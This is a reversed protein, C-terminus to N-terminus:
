ALKRSSRRFGWSGIRSSTAPMLLAPSRAASSVRWSSAKLRLCIRRGSTSWGFAIMKPTCFISRRRRVSFMLSESTSEASAPLTLASAPWSSCTSTLRTTFARSAIGFPPLRVMSVALTVRPSSHAASCTPTAGPWYTISETDSVPMPMSRAVRSRMKSGNKVVLSLVLPVPSPSEVAYPM